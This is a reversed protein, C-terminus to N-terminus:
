PAASRQLLPLFAHTVRVLGLVNTELVPRMIAATVDAPGIVANDPAREEIGANNILVDLGGEAEITKAAAAVSADDTVDILVMRAGLEAAARQGREADRAGVYVTHGAAVLQRATEKGLGKNAGTILTTAMSRSQVTRGGVPLPGTSMPSGPGGSVARQRDPKSRAGRGHAASAPRLRGAQPLLPVPSLQGDAPVPVAPRRNRPEHPWLWGAPCNGAAPAHSRGPSRARQAYGPHRHRM